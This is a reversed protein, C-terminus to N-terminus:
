VWPAWGFWTRGLINPDTAQDILCDVQEQTTNCREKVQARINFSQDGFVIQQLNKSCKSIRNYHVSEKLEQWTIYSSNDGNLKRKVINIKKPQFGLTRLTRTEM